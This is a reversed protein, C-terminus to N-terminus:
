IPRRQLRKITDILEAAAAEIDEASTPRGLSLRISGKAQAESRGIAKLVHSPRHLESTCASGTSMALSNSTLRLLDVSDVDPVFFNLNGPLRKQPHGNLEIGNVEVALRSWLESSLETLRVTEAEQVEKCIACAEAFGVIAPTNLTGSRKGGEQGGGRILPHRSLIADDRAYIAGIGKPGYLKHASFTVYDVGWKEVDVPIKGVAQTADSHFLIDRSHALMGIETLPQLTGIENNAAMISILVTNPRLVSILNDPSVIGDDGVALCTVEFGQRELHRCVELVSEHEIATTVIHGDPKEAAVALLLSNNAETAGSAFTIDGADAGILDAVQQRARDVQSAATWGFRHTTAAPNGYHEDLLPRMAAVVRSDVPTTANYDLYIPASM